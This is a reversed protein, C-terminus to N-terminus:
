IDNNNNNNNNCHNNYDLTDTIVQNIFTNIIPTFYEPYDSHVHHGGNIYEIQLYDSFHKSRTEIFSNLSPIGAKGMVGLTPANIHQIYPLLQAESYKHPSPLKLALDHTYSVQENEENLKITSRTVINEVTHPLLSPNGTQLREMAEKLNNYIRAKKTKLIKTSEIYKKMSSPGGDDKGTWPGFAEITIFGRIKEPYTGAAIMSLAGGMSHGMLFFKDFGFEDATSFIEPVFDVFHYNFFGDKKGSQGHGPFDICVVKIHLHTNITECDNFGNPSINNFWFNMVSDYTASNDLWGHVAIINVQENENENDKNVEWVQSAIELSSFSSLFTHQTATIM